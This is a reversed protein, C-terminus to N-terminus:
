SQNPEMRNGFPSTQGKTIRLIVDEKSHVAILYHIKYHSLVATFAGITRAGYGTTYTPIESM